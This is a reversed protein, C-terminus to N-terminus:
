LGANPAQDIVSQETFYGLSEATSPLVPIENYVELREGYLAKEDKVIYRINNWDFFLVYSGGGNLYGYAKLVKRVVSTDLDGEQIPPDYVQGDCSLYAATPPGYKISLNNFISDIRDIVESPWQYTRYGFFDGHQLQLSLMEYAGSNKDFVATAADLSFGLFAIDQKATDVYQVQHDKASSHTFFSAEVGEQYPQFMFGTKDQAAQIFEEQSCGFPIDWFEFLEPESANDSQALAACTCSLSLTVALIACFLRKFM